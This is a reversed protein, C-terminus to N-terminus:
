AALIQQAFYNKLSNLQRQNSCMLNRVGCGPRYILDMFRIGSEGSLLKLMSFHPIVVEWSLGSRVLNRIDCPKRRSSFIRMSM